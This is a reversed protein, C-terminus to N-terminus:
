GFRLMYRTNPYEQREDSVNFSALNSEIFNIYDKAEDKTIFNDIDIIM